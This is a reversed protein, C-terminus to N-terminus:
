PLLEKTKTADAVIGSVYRYDGGAVLENVNFERFHEMYEAMAEDSNTIETMGLRDRVFRLAAERVASNGEINKQATIATAEDLEEEVEEFDPLDQFGKITDKVGTPVDSLTNLKLNNPEDSLRLRELEEEVDKQFEKDDDLVGM